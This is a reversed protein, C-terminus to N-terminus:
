LGAALALAGFIVCALAIAVAPLIWWGHKFM